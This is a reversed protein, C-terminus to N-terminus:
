TSRVFLVSAIGHAGRWGAPVAEPAVDHRPAVEEEASEEEEQFGEGDLLRSAEPGAGLSAKTGVAAEKRAGQEGQPFPQSVFGPMSGIYLM